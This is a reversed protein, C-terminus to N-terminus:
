SKGSIAVVARELTLSEPEGSKKMKVDAQALTQYASVLAGPKFSRAQRVLKEARWPALGLDKGVQSVPKDMAVLLMRFHRTLSWFLLQVSEGQAVLHHLTQLALASQREAVADIFGFLRADARGQFQRSVQKATIRGGGPVASVLEQVAQVLALRQEGVAEVLVNLVDGSANFGAAALQQKLWVLLDSRKGKAVDIVHGSKRGALIMQSSPKAGIAILTTGASPSQLYGILERQGQASLRDVDRVIVIRRDEFMAPTTLAQLIRDPEDAPGFENISSEGVGEVLKRVAVEALHPDDGAVLYVPLGEPGSHSDM